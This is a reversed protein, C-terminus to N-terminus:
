LTVRIAGAGTHPDSGGVPSFRAPVLIRNEMTMVCPLLRAVQKMYAKNKFLKTRRRARDELDTYGWMHVIQSLDGGIETEWMGIFCGLIRAQIALCGEEFITLFEQSRGPHCIYYREEIIM